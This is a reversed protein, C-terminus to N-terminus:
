FRRSILFWIGFQNTHNYFLDTAVRTKIAAERNFIM